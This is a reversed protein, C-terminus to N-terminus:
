PTAKVGVNEKLTISLNKGEPVLSEDFDPIVDIEQLETEEINFSYYALGLGIIGIVIGIIIGYKM